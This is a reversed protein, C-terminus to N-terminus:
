GAERLLADTVARVQSRVEPSAKKLNDIISWVANQDTPDRMILDAPECAFADAFAELMDQTYPLEFREIRSITAASVSVGHESLREAVQEQTLDRFVRWAKIFHRLRPKGSRTYRKSM